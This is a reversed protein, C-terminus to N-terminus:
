HRPVQGTLSKLLSINEKSKHQLQLHITQANLQQKIVYVTKALFYGKLNGTQRNFLMWKATVTKSNKHTMYAKRCLLKYMQKVKIQVAVKM